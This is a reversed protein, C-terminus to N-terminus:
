MSIMIVEGYAGEERTGLRKGDLAELPWSEGLRRLLARIHEVVPVSLYSELGRTATEVDATLLPHSEDFPKRVREPAVRPGDRVPSRVRPERGQREDRVRPERDRELAREATRSQYSSGGLSSRIPGNSALSPRSSAAGGSTFPILLPANRRRDDPSAVNRRAPPPPPPLADGSTGQWQAAVALAAASARTPDRPARAAQVDARTLPPGQVPVHRPRGDGGNSLGQQQRPDMPRSEHRAEFGGRGREGSDRESRESSRPFAGAEVPRSFSHNRSQWMDAEVQSIRDRDRNSSMSNLVPAPGPYGGGRVPSRDRERRDAQRGAGERGNSDMQRAEIQRAEMQRSEYTSAPPQDRPYERRGLRDAIQTSPAGSTYPSPMLYSPTDRPSYKDAMSRDQQTPGAYSLPLIHFYIWTSHQQSCDSFKDPHTSTSPRQLSQSLHSLLPITQSPVVLCGAFLTPHAM